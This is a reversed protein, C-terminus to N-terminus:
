ALGLMLSVTQSMKRADDGAASHKLEDAVERFIKGTIASTLREVEQLQESTLQRLSSRNRALQEQRIGELRKDLAFLTAKVLDDEPYSTHNTHYSQM